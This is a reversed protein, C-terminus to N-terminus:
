SPRLTTLKWPPPLTGQGMSFDQFNSFVRDICHGSRTPGVPAEKVDMFDVLVEEVRWQNFDGTILIFPDEYQRKAKTVCGAIFDMMTMLM